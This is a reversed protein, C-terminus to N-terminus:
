TLLEIAAAVLRTKPDVQYVYGDSYRYMADVGDPYRSRYAYPVNYVDYGRPLPQGVTIDDGTLLAAIGLIRRDQPDVSFLTRDAYYYRNDPNQGFYNGYYSPARYDDYASPWQNGGFLAGGVLPILADIVGNQPRYADGDYDRWDDGSLRPYSSGFYGAFRDRTLKEAQGPPMCGNNKKALGPPCWNEVPRADRDYRVLVRRADEGAVAGVVNRLVRADQADDRHDVRREVERQIQKQAKMADPKGNGNGNANARMAVPPGGNGNGPRAAKDKGPGKEKGPGKDPKAKAAAGNGHGKGQGNGHGNSQALVPMSLALALAGTAAIAIRM